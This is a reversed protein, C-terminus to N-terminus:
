SRAPVLRGIILRYYVNSLVLAAAAMTLLSIAVIGAHQLITRPKLEYKVIEAASADLGTTLTCLRQEYDPYKRLVTRVLREDSWDDYYGAYEHRIQRALNQSCFGLRLETENVERMPDDGTGVAPLIGTRGASALFAPITNPSDPGATRTFDELTGLVQTNERTPLPDSYGVELAGAGVIAVAMAFLGKLVVRWASGLDSDLRYGVLTAALGFSEVPRRAPASAAPQTAPAPDFKYGLAELRRRESGCRCVDVTRPVTRGCSPCPWAGRIGESM